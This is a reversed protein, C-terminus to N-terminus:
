EADKLICGLVKMLLESLSSTMAACSVFILMPAKLWIKLDVSNPSVRKISEMPLGYLIDMLVRDPREAEISDDDTARVKDPLIKNGTQANREDFRECDQEFLRLKRLLTPMFMKVSLMLVLTTGIYMISKFSTLLDLIM